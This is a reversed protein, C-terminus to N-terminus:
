PPQLIFPLAAPLSKIDITRLGPWDIKQGSPVLLIKAKLTAAMEAKERIYTVKGLTGDSQLTGTILVDPIIKRGDVAALMAVALAAGLSDGELFIAGHFDHHISVVLNLKDLLGPHFARVWQDARDISLQFDSGYVVDKFLLLIEGDGPVADIRLRIAVPQGRQVGVGSIESWRAEKGLAPLAWFALSIFLFLRIPTRM